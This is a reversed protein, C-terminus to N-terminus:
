AAPAFVVSMGPRWGELQTTPRLRIEFTRLDTGGPRAAKWTAFEPLAALSEVRFDLDRGLAPLHGHHVSGAPYTALQDERLEVVAWVDNLDVLTVVPYGQPALEGAAVQLRAVMGPAPARIRTEALAVEAEAVVGGVQRAQAQAARRDESRAGDRAMGYQAEAAEALERAAKWQAEAEDRKQGAVVGQDYLAQVRDFTAKALDAATVAREWNFRAMAIEQPRAGAQAKDAVAQAAAQASQAQTLKAAVEPSDLSFLLDGAAVAQGPRVVVEGVRGSVKSSVNIERAELQGEIPLPQPRYAEWVGWVVLALVAIALGALGFARGRSASSTM